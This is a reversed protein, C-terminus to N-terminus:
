SRLVAEFCGAPGNMTMDVRLSILDTSSDQDVSASGMSLSYTPRLM